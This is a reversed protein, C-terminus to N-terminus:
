DNALFQEAHIHLVVQILLLKSQSSPVIGSKCSTQLQGVHGM